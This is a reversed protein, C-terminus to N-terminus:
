IRINYKNTYVNNKLYLSNSYNDSNFPKIKEPQNVLLKIEILQDLKLKKSPSNSVVKDVEVNESVILKKLNSRTM